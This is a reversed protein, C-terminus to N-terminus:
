RSDEGPPVSPTAGSGFMDRLVRPKRLLLPLLRKLRPLNRLNFVRPFIAAAMAMFAAVAKGGAIKADAAVFDAAGLGDGGKGLFGLVSRAVGSEVVVLRREQLGRLLLRGLGLDRNKAANLFPAADCIVERRWELRIVVPM